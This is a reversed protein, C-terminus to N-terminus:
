IYFHLVATQAQVNIGDVSAPAQVSGSVSVPATFSAFSCLIDVQVCRARGVASASLSHPFMEQSVHLSITITM